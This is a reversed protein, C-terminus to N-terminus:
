NLDEIIEETKSQKIYKDFVSMYDKWIIIEIKTDLEKSYKPWNIKETKINKFLSKLKKIVEFDEWINNYYIISKEYV